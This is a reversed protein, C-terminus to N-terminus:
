RCFTLLRQLCTISLCLTIMFILLILDGNDIKSVTYQKSKSPIDYHWRLPSVYDWIWVYWSVYEWIRLYWVDFFEQSKVVEALNKYQKWNRIKGGFAWYQIAVCSPQCHKQCITHTCLNALLTFCQCGRDTCFLAQIIPNAFCAAHFVLFRHLKTFCCSDINAIKKKHTVENFIQWNLHLYNRQVM